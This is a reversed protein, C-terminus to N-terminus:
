ANKDKKTPDVIRIVEGKSNLVIVPKQETSKEFVPKEHLKRRKIEKARLDSYSM